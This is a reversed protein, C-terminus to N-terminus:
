SGRWGARVQRRRVLDYLATPMITESLAATADTDSHNAAPASATRADGRDACLDANM